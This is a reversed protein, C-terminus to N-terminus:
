PRPLLPASVWVGHGRATVEVDVAEDVPGNGVELAIPYRAGAAVVPRPLLECSLREGRLSRVAVACVTVPEEGLNYLNFRVLQHDGTPTVTRDTTELLRPGLERLRQVSVPALCAGVDNVISEGERQVPRITCTMWM